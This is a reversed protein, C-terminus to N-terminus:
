FLVVEFGVRLSEVRLVLKPGLSVGMELLTIHTIFCLLFGLECRARARAGDM